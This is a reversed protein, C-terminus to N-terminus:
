TTVGTMPHETRSTKLSLILFSLVFAKPRPLQLPLALLAAATTSSAIRSQIRLIGSISHSARTLYTCFADETHDDWTLGMMLYFRLHLGSIGHCGMSLGFIWRSGSVGHYDMMSGFDLGM